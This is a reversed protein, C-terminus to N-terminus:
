SDAPNTEPPAADDEGEANPQCFGTIADIIQLYRGDPQFSPGYVKFGYTYVGDTATVTYTHLDTVMLEGANELEEFGRSKMEAYLERLEAVPKEGEQRTIAGDLAEEEISWRATDGEVTILYERGSFTSLGGSVYMVLEFNEDIRFCAPGLATLVALILLPAVTAKNM